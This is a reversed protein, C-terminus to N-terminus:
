KFVEYKEGVQMTALKARIEDDDWKVNSIYGIFGSTPHTKPDNGGFLVEVESKISYNNEEDLKEIFYKM